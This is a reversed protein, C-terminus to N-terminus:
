RIELALTGNLFTFTVKGIRLNQEALEFRGHPLPDELIPTQNQRTLFYDFASVETMNKREKGGHSGKHTEAPRKLRNQHSETDVKTSVNM